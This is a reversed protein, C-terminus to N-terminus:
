KEERQASTLAAKLEGWKEGLSSADELAHSIEDVMSHTPGAGYKEAIRKATERFPERGHLADFEQRAEIIPDSIIHDIM